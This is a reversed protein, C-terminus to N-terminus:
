NPLPYSLGVMAALDALMLEFLPAADDLAFQLHGFVELSVTGYLLVWCRLFTQRPRSHRSGGSSSM